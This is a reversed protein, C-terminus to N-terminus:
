KHVMELKDSPSEGVACCKVVFISKSRKPSSGHSEIRILSRCTTQQSENRCNKEGTRFTTTTNKSGTIITPITAGGNEDRNNNNNTTTTTKIRSGGGVVTM